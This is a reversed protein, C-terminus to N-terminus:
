RIHPLVCLVCLPLVLHGSCRYRCGCLMGAKGPARLEEFMSLGMYVTSPILHALLLQISKAGPWCVTGWWAWRVGGEGAFGSRDFHQHLEKLEV